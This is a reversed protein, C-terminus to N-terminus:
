LNVRKMKAYKLDIEKGGVNEIDINVLEFRPRGLEGGSLYYRGGIKEGGSKIIYKYCYKATAERANDGSLKIVTSFGLSFDSINYVPRGHKDKLPQLYYKSDKNNNVARVVALSGFNALGHFHISGDKHREPVLVYTLGKRRVRNDLWTNLKKIVAKYDGRDISESNLTLTVFCDFQLTSLLLDYLNNCARRYSKRRNDEDAEDDHVIRVQHVKKTESCPEVRLEFDHDLYMPRDFVTLTKPQYVGNDDPLYKIRGTYKVQEETKTFLELM